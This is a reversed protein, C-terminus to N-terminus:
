VNMFFNGCPTKPEGGELFSLDIGLSLNSRHRLLNSLFVDHFFVRFLIIWMGILFFILCVLCKESASQKELTKVGALLKTGSKWGDIQDDSSCQPGSYFFVCFFYGDWWGALNALSCILSCLPVCSCLLCPPALLRTLPPLLCVSPRALPGTCWDTNKTTRSWLANNVETQPMVINQETQRMM